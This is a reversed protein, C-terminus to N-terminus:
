FSIYSLFITISNNNSSVFLSGFFYLLYVGFSCDTCFFLFCFPYSSQTIPIGAFKRELDLLLNQVLGMNVGKSHVQLACLNIVLVWFIVLSVWSLVNVRRLNTIRLHSILILLMFSHNTASTDIGSILRGYVLLKSYLSFLM